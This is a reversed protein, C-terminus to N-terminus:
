SSDGCKRAMLMLKVDDDAALDGGGRALPLGMMVVDDRGHDDDEDDVDAVIASTAPLLPPAHYRGSCVAAVLALLLGSVGLVCAMAVVQVGAGKRDRSLPGVNWRVLVTRVSADCAMAVAEEGGVLSVHHDRDGITTHDHCHGQM